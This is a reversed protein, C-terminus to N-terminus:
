DIDMGWTKFMNKYIEPLPFDPRIMLNSRTYGWHGNQAVKFESMFGELKQKPISFMVEDESGLAREYEGPDPLVIWYEGTLIPNVVSYACSWPFFYSHILKREENRMSLLMNRLQSNNSYVIVLDPEFTTTILPATVIGVYKGHEFSDYPTSEAAQSDPVQPREVIGYAMLPGPCWNDEKLMAITEKERRSLAFAQCQTIHYGRDRKPRIAGEPIEAEKELMKVAIPSTRLRLLRELDEGYRNYEIITTVYLV